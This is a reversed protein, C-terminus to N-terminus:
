LGVLAQGTADTFMVGVPFSTTGVNTEYRQISLGWGLQQVYLSPATQDAARHVFPNWTAFVRHNISSQPWTAIAVALGFSAIARTTQAGPVGSRHARWHIGLLLMAAFLAAENIPRVNATLALSFGAILARGVDWPREPDWPLACTGTVLLLAAPIDSLPYVLHGHWYTACLGCYALVAVISGRMGAARTLLSPMALAFLAAGLLASVLRFLALPDVGRAAAARQIGYLFLPLAYGRLAENFGDLSFRGDVHFSGALAWYHASDGYLAPSTVSQASVMLAVATVVCAIARHSAPLPMSGILRGM